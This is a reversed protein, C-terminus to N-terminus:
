KNQNIYNIRSVEEHIEKVNELDQSSFVSLDYKKHRGLTPPIKVIELLKQFQKKSPSIGTLKLIKQLVPKPHLCLKEFSVPFFREGLQKGKLLARKNIRYWFKISRIPLEEPSQPVSVGFTPGWYYLMGQNKSFAMDLGDRIMLIFRLNDFVQDLKDVYNISHPNKWGWGKYHSNLKKATLFTYGSKALWKVTRYPRKLRSGWDMQEIVVKTWLPFFLAKQQIGTLMTQKLIEIRKNFLETDAFTKKNRFLFSVWYNDLQETLYSGMYIGLDYLFQAVVRTGSGGLGGIVIPSSEISDM